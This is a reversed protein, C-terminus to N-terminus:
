KFTCNSHELIM